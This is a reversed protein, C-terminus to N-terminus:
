AALPGPGLRADSSGYICYCLGLPNNNTALLTLRAKFVAEGLSDGSFLNALAERGFVDALVVPVTCETGVVARAGRDLFFGVFSGDVANWIQASECTNLFVIPADALRVRAGAIQVLLNSLMVESNTLTLSSGAGANTLKLFQEEMDKWNPDDTSLLPNSKMRQALAKIQQQANDRYRLGLPTNPAAAHGHAYVYILEGGGSVLAKVFDVRNEIVPKVWQVPIRAKEALTGLAAYHAPENKFNWRAYALRAPGAPRAEPPAAVGDGRRKVEIIFRYGWLNQADVAADPDEDPKVTLAAWPFVLDKSDENLSIQVISMDPLVDRIMAGLEFFDGNRSYDFLRTVIETGLAAVNKLLEDRDNGPLSVQGLAAGFVTPLLLDRFRAVFDNLEDLSLKKTGSVAPEGPRDKSGAAVAFRYQDAPGDAKSISITLARAASSPNPPELSAAAGGPHKFTVEVPLGQDTSMPGHASDEFQMDLQVHDILNLKHYLRIGIRPCVQERRRNLSTRGPYATFKFRASDRSDGSPPLEFAAFQRDFTFLREAIDSEGETEDSIVAWVTVTDAQPPMAIAPQDTRDRTIGRRKERIAVELTYTILATFPEFQNHVRDDPDFLTVDTYRPPVPPPSISEEPVAVPRVIGYVEVADPPGHAGAAAGTGAGAGTGTGAGAGAGTGTGISRGTGAPTPAFGAPAPPAPAAAAAVPPPLTELSEIGRRVAILSTGTDAEHDWTLRDVGNLLDAFHAVRIGSPEAQFSPGFGRVAESSIPLIFGRDLRRLRAQLVPVLDSVRARRLFDRPAVVLPALRRESSEWRVTAWAAVDVPHNHALEYIFGSLRDGLPMGNLRFFVAPEIERLREFTLREPFIRPTRGNCVFRLALAEGRFMEEDFRVVEVHVRTGTDQDPPYGSGQQVSALGRLVATANSLEALLDPHAVINLPWSLAPQNGWASVRSVDVIFSAVGTAFGSERVASEFGPHALIRRLEEVGEVGRCGAMPATLRLGPGAAEGAPRSFLSLTDDMINRIWGPDARFGNEWVTPRRARRWTALDGRQMASKLRRPSVYGYSLGAFLFARALAVGLTAPDAEAVKWQM